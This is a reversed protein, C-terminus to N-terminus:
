ESLFSYVCVADHKCNGATFTHMIRSNVRTVHSDWPFPFCLSFERSHSHHVPFPLSIPITTQIHALLTLLLYIGTRARGLRLVPRSAESRARGPRLVNQSSVWPDHYLKRPIKEM